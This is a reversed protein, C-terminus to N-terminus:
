PRFTGFTWFHGECDFASFERSGYDTDYPETVIRAGGDRARVWRVDPDAAYVYLSSSLGSVEGPSRVPYADSRTGSSGLMILAGDLSLQAHAITANPGDVVLQRQLGFVRELWDIAAPADLYRLAPYFVQTTAQSTSM